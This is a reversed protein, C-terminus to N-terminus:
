RPQRFPLRVLSLIRSTGNKAEAGESSCPAAALHLPTGAPGNEGSIHCPADTAGIPNPTGAAAQPHLPISPPVVYQAIYRGDTGTAKVAEPRDPLFDPLREVAGALDHLRRHSYRATLVPSSHGALLQVTRLEVGARGLASIFSHRLSHFDAYLPGNPGDTVYPIGAAKLDKKLMAAGRHNSSWTGPWVPQGAPKDQLHERLHAALKAPIPQVMTKRNKANRAALTVTPPDSALDFAEPTLSGLASARFGTGAATAYLAFRGIRNLGRYSRNSTRTAELLRTLEEDTLERRGHRVEVHANGGELHTLPNSAMRRDKVLWNAFSKLHGLYYNSTAMSRGKTRLDALWDNVRSASMKTTFTFGCGQFLTALRSITLGIYAPDNGRAELERKYDMLHESLPRKRQEEFPDILGEIEQAARKELKAALQETAARDTYGKKRRVIGSADRYTVYWRSYYIRVRDGKETLPATYVKGRKTTWRAFRQGKRTFITANPPIPKTSSPRTLYAM